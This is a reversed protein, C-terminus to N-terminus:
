QPMSNEIERQFILMTAKESLTIQNVFHDRWLTKSKENDLMQQSAAKLFKTLPPVFSQLWDLWTQNNYRVMESTSNRISQMAKNNSCICDSEIYNIIDLATFKTPEDDPDDNSHDNIFNIQVDQYELEAKGSSTQFITRLFAHNLIERFYAM